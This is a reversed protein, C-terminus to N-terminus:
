AITLVGSNSWVTGSALGSASTPLGFLMLYGTAHDFIMPSSQYVGGSFWQTELNNAVTKGIRWETIGDSAYDTMAFLGDTSDAQLYVSLSAHRAAVNVGQVDGTCIIDGTVGLNGGVGLDQLFASDLQVNLEGGVGVNALFTGIGTVGLTSSLTTAGTVSLTGTISVNSAFSAAGTVALTSSLTAAGTATFTGPIAVAGGSGAAVGSALKFNTGDGYVQASGGAPITAKTGTSYGILLAHGGTTNNVITATREGGPFTITANASLSGTFIFNLNIAEPSSLTTDGSIAKVLSGTTTALAVQTGALHGVLLSLTAPTDQEWDSNTLVDSGIDIDAVAPTITIPM